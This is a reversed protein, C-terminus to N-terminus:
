EATSDPPLPTAPATPDVDARRLRFVQLDLGFYKDTEGVWAMGNRRVTAAARTNGPRVVAFIEDVDHSFAWNALARTTESAYGVGWVKPHRQWGLELDERGPPLRLLIAGGLLQGDQRREIAWRGAPAATRADEAIWHQLLLRMAAVDPVQDMEPSLWRAVEPHGYIGLAEAADKVRWARLILRDTLLRPGVFGMSLCAACRDLTIVVLQIATTAMPFGIGLGTWSAM